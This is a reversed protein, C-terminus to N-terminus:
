RPNQFLKNTITAAAGVETTAEGEVEEAGEGKIGTAVTKASEV